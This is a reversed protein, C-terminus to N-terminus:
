QGVLTGFDGEEAQDPAALEEPEQAAQWHWPTELEMALAQQDAEQRQRTAGFARGPPQKPPAPEPPAAVRRGAGFTRSLRQASPQRALEEEERRRQAEAERQRVTEELNHNRQFVRSGKPVGSLARQQQQQNQYQLYEWRKSPDEPQV